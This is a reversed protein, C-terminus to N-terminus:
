FPVADQWEGPIVEANAWVKRDVIRKAHGVTINYCDAIYCLDQDLAARERIDIVDDKDLKAFGTKHRNRAVTDYNNDAVTGLTLHKPNCCRPNDCIHRVVNDSPVPGIWLEHAIRHTRHVKKNYWIRGHGFDSVSGQWEWCGSDNNTILRSLLRKEINKSM